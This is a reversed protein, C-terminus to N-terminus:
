LDLKKIKNGPINLDEHTVIVTIGKDQTHKEILQHILQKGPEDLATFPEDLIWLSAQTTLLRSLAVRRRQGSSLKRVPIDKLEAIGMQDLAQLPSINNRQVTLAQIAIINELPTLEAKIGNNHGIYNLERLYSSRLDQINNGIWCVEGANPLALGCLIRLLSTKGSGNAGQVQLIEGAEIRIDLNSFLTLYNRTCELGIAELSHIINDPKNLTIKESSVYSNM